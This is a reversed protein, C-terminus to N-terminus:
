PESCRGDSLYDDEHIHDEVHDMWTSEPQSQVRSPWYHGVGGTIVLCAECTMKKGTHKAGCRICVHSM